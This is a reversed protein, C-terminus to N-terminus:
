RGTWRPQRKEVFASLGERVDELKMLDNLYLSEVRELREDLAAQDWGILTAKKALRLVPASLSRLREAWVQATEELQELRVVANVLGLEHARGASWTEGLLVCELAAQRSLLQPLLLAAIPPFVGVKVEPQGFTASSSALIIDCGLALEMGGGLAAGGVVALVPQPLAWLARLVGHFTHIMEDVRDPTHDAVDVGVCFAKGQAGLLVVHADSTSLSRVHAELQGMTAIDLVNLPPRALSIRAVGNEVDLKVTEPM